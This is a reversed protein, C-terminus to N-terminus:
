RRQSGDLNLYLNIKTHYLKFINKMYVYAHKPNRMSLNFFFFAEHKIFFFFLNRTTLSKM